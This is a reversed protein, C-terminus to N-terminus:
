ELLLIGEDPRLAVRRHVFEDVRDCFTSLLIKGKLGEVEVALPRSGVNLAVFVTQLGPHRRAYVLADGKAILLQYGGSILIPYHKRLSLLLRYFNLMSAAESQQHAVNTVNWQDILPTWPEASSFGAYDDSSWPMPARASDRGLGFGPVNLELPDQVCEPPVRSQVMGIEDGYYLTPTGRLTLLLMAAVRAQDVGVRTAIRPRDHNGLVWNPWSGTPLASEYEDILAALATAQWQASLLSFNFPLHVGDLEKGYYAVLKSPPLYIEGILLRDAFEESVRRLDAVIDHVDPLDATYLPIFQHEPSQGTTYAPNLPNDRFERDKVLYWLADIRFGDVGKAFWSRLM